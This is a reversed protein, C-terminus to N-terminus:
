KIKAQIDLFLKLDYSWKTYRTNVTDIKDQNIILLMQEGHIM